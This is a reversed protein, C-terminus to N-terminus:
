KGKEGERKVSREEKGGKKTGVGLYPLPDSLDSVEGFPRRLFRGGFPMTCTLSYFPKLLGTAQYMEHANQWVGLIHLKM